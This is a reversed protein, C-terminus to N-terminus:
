FSDKQLTFEKDKGNEMKRILTTTVDPYEETPMRVEVNINRGIEDLFYMELFIKISRKRESNKYAEECYFVLTHADPYTDVIDELESLLFNNELKDHTEQTM